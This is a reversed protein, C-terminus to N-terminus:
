KGRGVVMGLVGLWEAAYSGLTYHRRGGGGVGRRARKAPVRSLATHARGQISSSALGGALKRKTNQKAVRQSTGLQSTARQLSM